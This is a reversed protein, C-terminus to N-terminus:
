SRGERLMSIAKDIRRQRTEATKADAIALVHRRKHSYSLRDFSRRADADGALADAFDPPVAVERPETDLEIDVDVEDGGAVGAGKRVEASVGVMFVGGVVAVSNRYTYGNITVRVAPRKSTGLAAVIEDPVRIGTATKDNQLITTHFRM